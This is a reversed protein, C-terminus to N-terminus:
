TRKDLIYWFLFLDLLFVVLSHVVHEASFGRSFYLPGWLCEFIYISRSSVLVVCIKKDVDVDYIRAKKSSMDEKLTKM